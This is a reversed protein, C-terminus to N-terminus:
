DRKEYKSIIKTEIIGDSVEINLEDGIDAGSINSVVGGDKSRVVSFGLAFIKQPNRSDAINRLLNLKAFKSNLYIAAGSLLRSELLAINGSHVSFSIRPLSLAKSTMASLRAHENGLRTSALRDILSVAKELLMRSNGICRMAADRLESANEDVRREFMENHNVLFGAVATPTKLSVRSVLDAVSQDKDHGIGTIVPLPFQALHSCLRYSNFAQLDSQSGGGRILVVADFDEIREAIVDLAGIVSQEVENGQMVADFLEVNFGYGRANSRLEDMFDQYGAANRSSILAIRQVVEPLDSERNMDIIGECRLREITARRQAELDGLTYSPEIDTIQFSLGHLEHYNVMVKVLVKLGAKLESGTEAKFYSAIMQHKNRWIVANVKARPISNEGGKEVLEIYCHGSSYNVKLENVEAVVWYPLPLSVGIQEKILSQLEYLTFYKNNEM